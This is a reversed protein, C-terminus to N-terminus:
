DGMILRHIYHPLLPSSRVPKINLPCLANDIASAIAASVPICGAEGVGKAGLPNLSTPTELHLLEVPPLDAAFPMLFQSFSANRIEGKEDINLSEYLAGGIGQAIGGLIQGCVADKNLMHGCDHICIYRLFDVHGTHLDVELMVAHAGYGWTARPPSFFARSELGPSQHQSLAPGDHRSKVFQTAMRAATNFAYRLPNASTAVTALPIAVSGDSLHAQGDKLVIEESPVKLLNAATQCIQERLLRAAQYVASGAVVASRSAYTGGGLDFAQTDGAVIIVDQPSVGLQEAVIHSFMTQHDQGQCTVGTSLIIKGTIPQVRAAAGEYPGIGTGEVYCAVGLGMYRGQSWARAQDVRFKDVDIATRLTELALVYRGVDMEVAAGDQFILGERRYPFEDDRILNRLRLTIPDIALETALQDLAREIAFCAHPRGCGRYPTVPVTPTYVVDCDVELHPIRYPGAISTASVHAVIIGYPMFAGSDHLIKDHLGLIDGNKSAYLTIEHRQTREQSSSIFNERRDETFKVPRKLQMAAFPVLLEDPYFFLLKQGFGGGVNPAIIRVRHEDLGLLAALGNRVAVPAQTTDWVTLEGTNDDFRAAVARPELPAATARDMQVVITTVHEAQLKAVAIHGSSQTFHAGINNIMGPHLCPAEKKVAQELDVVFPLPQYEVDILEAADEAIYRNKAVIMVIAQGIYFVAENALPYQTRGDIIAPHPILLPLPANLTGIDKAQYVAIVGPYAQARQVSHVRIRARAQTSRVFAVHLAQEFCLDDVFLGKGTILREKDAQPKRNESAKNTTM